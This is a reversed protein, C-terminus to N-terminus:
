RFGKSSRGGFKWFYEPQQRAEGPKEQRPDRDLQHQNSHEIDTESRFQRPQPRQFDSLHAFDEDLVRASKSKSRPM